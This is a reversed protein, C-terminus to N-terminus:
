VTGWADIEQERRRLLFIVEDDTTQSFDDYFQGVAYFLTPAYLCIVDDAEARLAEVGEPPAV